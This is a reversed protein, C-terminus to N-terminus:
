DSLVDRSYDSLVEGGRLCCDESNGTIVTNATEPEEVQVVEREIGIMIAEVPLVTSQGEDCRPEENLYSRRDHVEQETHIYTATLDPATGGISSDQEIYWVHEEGWGWSTDRFITGM